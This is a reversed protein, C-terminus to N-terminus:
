GNSPAPSDVRPKKREQESPVTNLTTSMTTKIAGMESILQAFMSKIDVNAAQQQQELVNFKTSIEENNKSMNNELCTMKNKLDLMEKEMVDM